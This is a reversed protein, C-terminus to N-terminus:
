SNLTFVWKKAIRRGLGFKGKVFVGGRLATLPPPGGDRSRGM